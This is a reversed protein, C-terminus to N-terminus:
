PALLERKPCWRGMTIRTLFTELAAIPLRWSLLGLNALTSSLRRTDGTLLKSGVTENSLVRIRKKAVSLSLTATDDDDDDDSGCSFTNLKESGIDKSM